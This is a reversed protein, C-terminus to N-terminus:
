HAPGAGPEAAVRALYPVLFPWRILGVPAHLTRHVHQEQVHSIADEGRCLVVWCEPRSSTTM